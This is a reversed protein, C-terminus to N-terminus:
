LVLGVNSRHEAIQDAMFRTSIQKAPIGGIFYLAITAGHNQMRSVKLLGIAHNSYVSLFFEAKLERLSFV